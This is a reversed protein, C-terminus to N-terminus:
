YFEVFENRILALPFVQGKSLIEADMEGSKGLACSGFVSVGNKCRLFDELESKSRFEIASLVGLRDGSSRVLPIRECGVRGMTLDVGLSLKFSTRLQDELTKLSSSPLSVHACTLFTNPLGSNDKSPLVSSPGIKSEDTIRNTQPFDKLSTMRDPHLSARLREVLNKPLEPFIRVFLLTTSARIITGGAKAM